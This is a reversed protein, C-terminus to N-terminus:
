LMIFSRGERECISCPNTIDRGFQADKRKGSQVHQRGITNRKFNRIDRSSTLIYIHQDLLARAVNRIVYWIICTNIEDYGDGDITSWIKKEKPAITFIKIRREIVAIGRKIITNITITRVVINFQFTLSRFDAQGSM